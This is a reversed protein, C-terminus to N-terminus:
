RHDDLVGAVAVMALRYSLVGSFGSIAGTRLQGTVRTEPTMGDRPSVIVVPCRARTLGYEIARGPGDQKQFDNWLLPQHQKRGRLTGPSGELQIAVDSDKATSPIM